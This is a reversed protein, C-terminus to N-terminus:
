FSFDDPSITIEDDADIIRRLETIKQSLEEYEKEHESELDDVTHELEVLRQKVQGYTTTMASVKKEIRTVREEIGRPQSEEIDTLESHGKKTIWAQKPNVPYQSDQVEEREILCEQELKSLRYNTDKTTDAWYLTETITKSRVPENQAVIQLVQQDKENINNQAM